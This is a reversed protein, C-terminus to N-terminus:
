KIKKLFKIGKVIKECTEYEEKNEYHKLNTELGELFDDREITIDYIREDEEVEISLIYVFRKTTYLHKLIGEVIAKSIRFDKAGVLAEFDENSKVVITTM